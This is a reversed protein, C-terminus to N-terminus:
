VVLNIYIVTKLSKTSKKGVYESVYVFTKLSECNQGGGKVWRALLISLFVRLKQSETSGIGFSKNGM